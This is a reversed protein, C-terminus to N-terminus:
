VIHIQVDNLKRHGELNRNLHSIKHVNIESQYHKIYIVSKDTLCTPKFHSSIHLKLHM